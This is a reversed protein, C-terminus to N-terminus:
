AHLKELLKRRVDADWEEKLISLIISDRRSGDELPMHSRIVGEPKCGIALMARISRENRNDARFEVRQIQLSEFAYELLLYKCWKNLKTGRFEKGYWTYGLQLMQNAPQMDYYRTSGAYQQQVKDYVIFPFATGSIRADIASQVYTTMDEPSHIQMLSYKWIDPEEIAFRQLHMVDELQLARLSVFENELILNSPIM